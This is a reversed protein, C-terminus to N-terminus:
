GEVLDGDTAVLGDPLQAVEAQTPDIHEDSAVSGALAVEKPEEMQDAVQCVFSKADM